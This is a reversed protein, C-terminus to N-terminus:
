DISLTAYAIPQIDTDITTGNLSVSMTKFGLYSLENNTRNIVSIVVTKLVDKMLRDVNTSHMVGMGENERSVENFLENALLVNGDKDSLTLALSVHRRSTVTWVGAENEFEFNLIKGTLSYSPPSSDNGKYADVGVSNFEKIFIDQLIVSVPQYEINEYKLGFKWPDQKGVFSNSKEDNSDIWARTDEFQYVALKKGAIGNYQLDVGPDYTAVLARTCGGLITIAFFLITVKLKM